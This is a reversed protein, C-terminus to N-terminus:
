FSPSLWTRADLISRVKSVYTEAPADHWNGSYWRGICGWLDGAIYTTGPASFQRLWTEKGEYCLRRVALAYDVNFATSTLAAPWTGPHTAPINAGKIQMLGVSACGNTEPQTTYRCDGLWSQKWTSEMVAVARVDSEDFGWKCAAWRIVQDTTGTFNGTVRQEYAPLITGIYSARLRFGSTWANNQNATTNQPRPEWTDRVIESACQQESPLATGPGLTTYM